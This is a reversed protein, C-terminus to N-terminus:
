VLFYTIQYKVSTSMIIIKKIREEQSPLLKIKRPLLPLLPLFPSRGGPKLQLNHAKYNQLPILKILLKMQSKLKKNMRATISYGKRIQELEEAEIQVIPLSYNNLAALKLSNKQNPHETKSVHYLIITGKKPVKINQNKIWSAKKSCM